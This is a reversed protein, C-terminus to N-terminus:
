HQRNSENAARRLQEAVQHAYMAAELAAFHKASPNAKFDIYALSLLHRAEIADQTPTTNATHM